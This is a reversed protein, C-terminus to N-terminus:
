RVQPGSTVRIVTICRCPAESGSSSVQRDVAVEGTRGATAVGHYQETQATSVVNDFVVAPRM